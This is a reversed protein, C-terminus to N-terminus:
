FPHNLFDKLAEKWHRIPKRCLKEYKYTDLVSWDPRPTPDPYDAGKIPLIACNVPENESIIRKIEETFEFRSCAGTNAFHFIGKAEHEILFALAEAADRTYTTRGFQDAVIKLEPKSKMLESITSVFNRGNPGYLWSVRMILSDPLLDRIVLEGALKSAGYLNVPDTEDEESKDIREKGPFVFDTSIHILKFKLEKALLCLNKVGTENIRYALDTETEAKTVDTYAACNIVYEPNIEMLVRRMEEPQCIDFQDVDMATHDKFFENQRIAYALMGKGGTIFFRSM